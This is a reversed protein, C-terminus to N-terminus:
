KAPRPFFVPDDDPWPTRCPQANEYLRLNEQLRPILDSRQAQAAALAQRQWNAAEEYNGLEAQTMAMTQMMELTRQIRFLRELLVLARRGDRVRPDPAAALLRALAHAFGPQDPYTDMATALRDRAEQYRRLRVLAMAYGFQAQSAAPNTRVIEAYHPLSDASRGARRLADALSLRAEALAGDANVAASFENIAERDRGGAELVIGAGYHAKALGPSLRAANQFERLAGKADGTQYLATGLNLHTSANDPAVAIAQRLYRIADTWQRRGLAESARVEDADANRLLGGVQQLLPDTPAVDVNGRLQMQADARKPEGLGRFALALPYHIASADPRLALAAELDRVAGGYDNAALKARGLRYLAAAERPQLALAKELLPRASEPQGEVLDMEARWILSPVHDPQMTLARDFQAAARSPNNQLRAVHGLYYTWAMATPELAQADTFCRGAQDLFETAMFLRGMEGYAAALSAPSTGAAVQQQLAAYRERIQAQVPASAASIDPLEVREVAPPAAKEPRPAQSRCGPTLVLVGFGCALAAVRQRITQTV